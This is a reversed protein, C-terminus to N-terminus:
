EKDAFVVLRKSYSKQEKSWTGECTILNLHPQGDKSSFVDIADALPDYKRIERVVFVTPLATGSEVYIKDGKQLKYLDDFVAPKNDKWGYHGDIVASGNEGPRPGLDFWGVRDADKPIDMSGDIKIGVNEITADVNIAPIKLRIPLEKATQDSFVTNQISEVLADYIADRPLQVTAPSVATKYSFIIFSLILVFSIGAGLLFWKLLIRIQMNRIYIFGFV